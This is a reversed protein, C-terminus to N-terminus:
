ERARAAGAARVQARRESADGGGSSGRETARHKLAPFLHASLVAGRGGRIRRRRAMDARLEVSVDGNPM